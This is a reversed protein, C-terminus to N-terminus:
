PLSLLFSPLFSYRDHNVPFTVTTRKQRKTSLIRSLLSLLLLPSTLHNRFSPFIIRGPHSLRLLKRNRNVQDMLYYPSCSSLSSSHFPSPQPRCKQAVQRTAPRKDEHKWQRLEISLLSSSSFNSSSFMSGPPSLWESLPGPGLLKNNESQRKVPAKPFIPLSLILLLPCFLSLLYLHRNQSAPQSHRWERPRLFYPSNSLPFPVSLCFLLSSFLNIGM